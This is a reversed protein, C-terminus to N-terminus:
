EMSGCRVMALASKTTGTPPAISKAASSRAASSAAKATARPSRPVVRTENRTSGVGPTRVLATRSATMRRAKAARVACAPAAASSSAARKLRAISLREGAQRNRAAPYRSEAGGRVRSTANHIKGRSSAKRKRECACAISRSLSTKLRVDRSRLSASKLPRSSRVSKRSASTRSKWAPPM